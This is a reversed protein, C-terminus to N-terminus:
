SIFRSNNCVSFISLMKQSVEYIFLLYACMGHYVVTNTGMPQGFFEIAVYLARGWYYFNSCHRNIVDQQTDKSNPRKRFTESFKNQLTDFNCYLLIAVICDMGICQNYDVIGYKDPHAGRGNQKMNQINNMQAYQKAKNLTSKWSSSMIQHIENKLLEEKMSNYNINPKYKHYEIVSGFAYEYIEEDDDNRYIKYKLLHIYLICLYM